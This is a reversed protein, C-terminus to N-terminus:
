RWRLRLVVASHDSPRSASPLAWPGIERASPMPQMMTAMLWAQTYLVHDIVCQKVETDDPSGGSGGVGGGRRRFKWTTFPMTTSHMGIEAAAGTARAGDRHVVGKGHAADAMSSPCMTALSASRGVCAALQVRACGTDESAGASDSACALGGGGICHRKDAVGATGCDRVRCAREAVCVGEDGGGRAARGRAGHGDGDAASGTGTEAGERWVNRGHPGGVAMSAEQPTGTRCLSHYDDWCSCLPLSRAVAIGATHGTVPPAETLVRLCASTPTDNFDGCIIVAPPRGGVDAPAGVIPPDSSSPPELPLGSVYDSLQLAQHTRVAADDPTSGAKLHVGIVHLLGGTANHHLHVALYAQNSRSGDANLFSTGAPTPRSTTRRPLAPHLCTFSAHFMASTLRAFLCTLSHRHTYFLFVWV